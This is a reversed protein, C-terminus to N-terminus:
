PRGIVRSRRPGPVLIQRCEGTKPHVVTFSSAPAVFVLLAGCAVIVTGVKKRM